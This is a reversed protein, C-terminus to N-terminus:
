PRPTVQVNTTYGAQTALSAEITYTEGAKMGKTPIKEFYSVFEGTNIAVFGEMPDFNRDESWRGIVNGLADKTLIELRQDTPYILSITDREPNSVKLTVDIESREALSFDTPEVTLIMPLIDANKNFKVSSFMGTFFKKVQQQVPPHPPKPVYMGLGERGAEAMAAKAEEREIYFPSDASPGTRSIDLVETKSITDPSEARLFGCVGMLLLIPFHRRYLIVSFMGLPTIRHLCRNCINDGGSLSIVM